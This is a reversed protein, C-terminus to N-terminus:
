RVFVCMGSGAAPQPYQAECDNRDLAYWSDGEFHLLELQPLWTLNGENYCMCRAQEYNMLDGGRAQCWARAAQVTADPTTLQSYLGDCGTVPLCANNIAVDDSHPLDCGKLHAVVNFTGDVNTTFKNDLSIHELNADRYWTYSDAGEPIVTLTVENPVCDITTAGEITPKTTEAYAIGPVALRLASVCGTMTDRSQAYYTAAAPATLSTTYSATASSVTPGGSSATYWDITCGSMTSASFTVDGTGCRTNNSANAPAVPVANVTVTGAKSVTSTCGNANTAYVTYTTTGATSLATPYTTTTTSTITGAINWTYTMATTTGGSAAATFTLPAGACVTAPPTATVTMPPTRLFGAPNYTLDTISTICTGPGFDYSDITISNNITFPPTGRLTYGGNAKVEANPPVNIAYACWSFQGSVNKLQTTVTASGTLWFGQDGAALTGASVSTFTARSMSAPNHPSTTYEVFVWTPTAPSMTVSFIVESNDFNEGLLTVTTQAYSIGGLL